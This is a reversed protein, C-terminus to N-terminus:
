RASVNIETITEEVKEWDQIWRRAAIENAQMGGIPPNTHMHVSEGGWATKSYDIEDPM